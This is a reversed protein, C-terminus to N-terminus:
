KISNNQMFIDTLFLVKILQVLILVQFGIPQICFNSNM